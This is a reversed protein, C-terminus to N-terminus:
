RPGGWATIYWWGIPEGGAAYGAFFLMVVVHAVLGLYFALAAAMHLRRSWRLGPAVAGRAGVIRAEREALLQYRLSDLPRGLWHKLAPSFLAEDATPDLRALLAVKRDIIAQLAPKDLHAPAGFGDARSNRAFLRSFGRAVYARMLSGQVVLFIMAALVIGPPTIWDGAAVHIFVLIAGAQPALAHIVFWTPPSASRGSRKMVLFAAPALLLLAGLAASGQAFPAGPRPWDGVFLVAIAVIAFAGLLQLLTSGSLDPRQHSM